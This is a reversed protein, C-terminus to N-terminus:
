KLNTYEKIPRYISRQGKVIAEASGRYLRSLM